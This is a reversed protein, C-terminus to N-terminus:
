DSKTVETLLREVSEPIKGGAFIVFEAVILLSVLEEAMKEM